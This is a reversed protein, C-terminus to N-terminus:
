EEELLIDFRQPARMQTGPLITVTKEYPKFGQAKIAITHLGPDLFAQIENSKSVLAGDIYIEGYRYPYTNNGEKAVVNILIGGKLPEMPPKPKVVPAPTKTVAVTNAPVPKPKAESKEPTETKSCGALFAALCCIVLM